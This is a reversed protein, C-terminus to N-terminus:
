GHLIGPSNGCRGYREYIDCLEESGKYLATCPRVHYKNNKKEALTDWKCCPMCFGGLNSLHWLKITYGKFAEYNEEGDYLVSGHYVYGGNVRM